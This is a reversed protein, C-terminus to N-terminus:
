GTWNYMSFLVLLLQYSLKSSNVDTYIQIQHPKQFLETEKNEQVKRFFYGLAFNYLLPLLANQKLGNETSSADSMHM